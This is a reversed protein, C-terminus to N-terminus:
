LVWLRFFQENVKKWFCIIGCSSFKPVTICFKFSFQGTVQFIVYPIQNIKMRATWLRFIQVKSIEKQGFCIFLKIFFYLLTKDWSVWSHNLTQLFVSEQNWFHCSSNPSNASQHIVKALLVYLKMRFLVSSNNRM